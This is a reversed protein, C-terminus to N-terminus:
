ILNLGGGKGENGIGECVRGPQRGVERAGESPTQVLHCSAM